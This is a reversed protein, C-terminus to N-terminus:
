LPVLSKSIQQEPLLCLLCARTEIPPVGTITM